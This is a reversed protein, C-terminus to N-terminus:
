REPPMREEWGFGLGTKIYVHPIAPKPLKRGLRFNEPVVETWTSVGGEM